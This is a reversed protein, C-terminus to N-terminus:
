KWYSDKVAEHFYRPEVIKTIAAMYCKHAPSIKDCTVYNAIPYSKGLSVKPSLHIATSSSSPDQPRASFCVYDQLHRPVKQVRKDREPGTSTLQGTGMDSQDLTPPGHLGARLIPEM